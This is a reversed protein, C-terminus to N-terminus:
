LKDSYNFNLDSCRLIYTYIQQPLVLLVPDFSIEISGSKDLDRLNIKEIVDSSCISEM